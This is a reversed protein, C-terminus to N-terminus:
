QEKRDKSAIGKAHVGAVVEGFRCDLWGRVTGFPFRGMQARDFEILAPVLLDHCEADWPEMKTIGAPM